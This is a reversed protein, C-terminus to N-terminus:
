RWKAVTLTIGLELIITGGWVIIWYYPITINFLFFTIVITISLLSLLLNVYDLAFLFKYIRFRSEHLIPILLLRQLRTWKKIYRKKNKNYSGSGIRGTALFVSRLLINCAGWSFTVLLIWLFMAIEAPIDHNM